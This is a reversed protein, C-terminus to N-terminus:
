ITIVNRVIHIYNHIVLCYYHYYFYYYYYYYYYYYPVDGTICLNSDKVSEPMNEKRLCPCM